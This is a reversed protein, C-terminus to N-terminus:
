RSFVVFIGNRGPVDLQISTRGDTVKGAAMKMEGSMPDWVEVKGSTRFTCLLSAAETSNNLLFYIDGKLLSRHQYYIDANKKALQVDANSVKELTKRLSDVGDLQFVREQCSDSNWIKDVIQNFEETSGADERHSPIDGCSIVTGGADVFRDIQKLTSLTLTNVNPLVLISYDCKGIKISDGSIKAKEINAEDLYDFDRQCALLERTVAQWSDDVLKAKPNDDLNGVHRNTPMFNAWVSAIPYLVAVDAKFEGQTLMYSLKGTYDNLKRHVDPSHEQQTSLTTLTNIGLTWQWAVHAIMSELPVDKTVFCFSESCTRPKGTVHASSSILKPTVPGGETMSGSTCGYNCGLVDIGPIDLRAISTIFDGYFNAHYILSEEWVLHGASAANHAKCWQEIRGFYNKATCDAIVRYVDCRKRITDNGTNNFISPLAQKIDYGHAAKFAAPLGDWWALAPYGPTKEVLYGGMLSPEDTFFAKITTGFDKGAHSYYAEHTVQIFRDTADPNMLNVYREGIFDSHTGKYLATKMFAIIRWNGSKLVFEISGNHAKSTLDVPKGTIMGADLKFLAIYYPEGEPLKWSIDKDSTVTYDSSAYYLGQAEFEPHDKLVLSGAKGSPYAREDYIWMPLNNKRCEDVADTFQKWGDPNELYGPGWDPFQVNAGGWGGDRIQKVQDAIHMYDFSCMPMARDENVPNTFRERMQQLSDDSSESGVCISAGSIMYALTISTYIFALGKM